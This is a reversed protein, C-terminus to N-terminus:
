RESKKRQNMAELAYNAVKLLTEDRDQALGKLMKAM